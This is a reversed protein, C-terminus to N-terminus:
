MLKSLQHTDRKKETSIKKTIHVLKNCQVPQVRTSPFHKKSPEMSFFLSLLLIFNSTIQALRYGQSQPEMLWESVAVSGKVVLSQFLPCLCLWSCLKLLSM